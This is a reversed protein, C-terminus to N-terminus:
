GGTPALRERASSVLELYDRRFPEVLSKELRALIASLVYEEGPHVIERAPYTDEWRSLMELLVLAEDANLTLTIGEAM